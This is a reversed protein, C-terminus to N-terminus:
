NLKIRAGVKFYVVSKKNEKKHQKEVEYFTKLISMAKVKTIPKAFRKYRNNSKLKAIANNVTETWQQATRWENSNRNKIKQVTKNIGSKIARKEQLNYEAHISLQNGLQDNRVRKAHVRRTIVEKIETNSCETAKKIANSITMNNDTALLKITNNLTTKTHNFDKFISENQNAWDLTYARKQPTLKLYQFCDEKFKRNKAQLALVHAIDQYQVEFVKNFEIQAIENNVKNKTCINDLEKCGLLDVIEIPLVNVRNDFRAIRKLMLEFSVNTEAEYFRLLCDLISPEYKMTFESLYYRTHVNRDQKDNEDKLQETQENQRAAAAQNAELESKFWALSNPTGNKTIAKSNASNESRFILVDITKNVGTKHNYRPRNILQIAKQWSRTDCLIMQTVAQTISTGAELVSTMFAFLIKANVIAHEGDETIRGTEILREYEKKAKDKADSTFRVSDINLSKLWDQFNNITKKNDIKLLVLGNSNKLNDLVFSLIDKISGKKYVIPKLNIIQSITPTIVTLDYNLTDHLGSCFFYQPTASLLLTNKARSMCDYLLCFATPNRYSFDIGLQHFEDVVVFCTSLFQKLKEARELGEIKGFSDEIDGDIFYDLVTKLSDYCVILVPCSMANFKEAESMTGNILGANISDKIFDKHQQESIAQTPSLIITKDVGIKKLLDKNQCISKCAYSKGMGAQAAWINRNSSVLTRELEKLPTIGYQNPTDQALYQDTEIVQHHLVEISYPDDAFTDIKSFSSVCYKLIDSQDTRDKISLTDVFRDNLSNFSKLWTKAMNLDCLIAKQGKVAKKYTNKSFFPLKAGLAYKKTEADLLYPLIYVKDYNKGEIKLLNKNKLLLTDVIILESDKPLFEAGLGKFERIDSIILKTKKSNEHINTIRYCPLFCLGKSVKTTTM